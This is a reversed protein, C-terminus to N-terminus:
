WWWRGNENGIDNDVNNGDDDADGDEEEDDICFGAGYQIAMVAVVMVVM